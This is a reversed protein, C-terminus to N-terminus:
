GVIVQSVAPKRAPIAPAPRFDSNGRFSRYFALSILINKNFHPQKWMEAFSLVYVVSIIHKERYFLPSNDCNDILTIFDVCVIRKIM